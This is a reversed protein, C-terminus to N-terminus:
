CASRARRIRIVCYGQQGAKRPGDIVKGGLEVCRRM